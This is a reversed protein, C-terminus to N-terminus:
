EENTGTDSGLEKAIRDMEGKSIESEKKRRVVDEAIDTLESASVTFHTPQKLEEKADELQLQKILTYRNGKGTRLGMQDLQSLAESTSITLYKDNKARIMDAVMEVARRGIEGLAKAGQNQQNLWLAITAIDRLDCRVSMVMTRVRSKM